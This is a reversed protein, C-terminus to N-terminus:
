EDNNALLFADCFNAFLIKLKSKIPNSKKTKKISIIIGNNTKKIAGTPSRMVTTGDMLGYNIEDGIMSRSPMKIGKNMSSPVISIANINREAMTRLLNKAVYDPWSRSLPAATTEDITGRQLLKGAASKEIQSIRYNLNALEQQQLQAAQARQAVAVEEQQKQKLMQHYRAAQSWIQDSWGPEIEEAELKVEDVEETLRTEAVKFSRWQAKSCMNRQHLRNMAGGEKQMFHIIPVISIARKMLAQGMKRGPTETKEKSPEGQGPVWGQNIAAKKVEYFEEITPPLKFNFQSGELDEFFAFKKKEAQHKRYM